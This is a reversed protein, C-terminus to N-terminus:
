KGGRPADMLSTMVMVGGVEEGSQGQNTGLRLRVLHCVEGGGGGRVGAGRSYLSSTMLPCGRADNMREMKM